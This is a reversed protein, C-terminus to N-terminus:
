IGEWRILKGLYNTQCNQSIVMNVPKSLFRNGSGTFLPFSLMDFWGEDVYYGNEKVHNEPSGMIIDNAWIFQCYDAVEPLEAYVAPALLASCADSYNASASDERHILKFVTDKNQHFQDVSLLGIVTLTLAMAVGMGLSLGIVNVSTYIKNKKLSNFAYKFHHLM